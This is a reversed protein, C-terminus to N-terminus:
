KESEIGFADLMKKPIVVQKIGKEELKKNVRQAYELAIDPETKIIELISQRAMKYEDHAAVLQSHYYPLFDDPDGGERLFKMFERKAVKMIEKSEVQRESDTELIPNNMILIEALHMQDFLSMPPLLPPPNGLECTFIWDMAQELNTAYLRNTPVNPIPTDRIKDRLYAIKEDMTMKGFMERRRERETAEDVQVINGAEEQRKSPVVRVSEKIFKTKSSDKVNAVNEKKPSFNFAFIIVAIAIFAIGGVAIILKWPLGFAKEPKRNGKISQIIAM